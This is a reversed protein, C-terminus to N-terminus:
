FGVVMMLLYDVNEKYNIKLTLSWSAVAFFNSNAKVKFSRLALPCYKSTQIVSTGL